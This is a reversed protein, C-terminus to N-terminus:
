KDAEKVCGALAVIRRRRTIIQLSSLFRIVKKRPHRRRMRDSRVPFQAHSNLMKAKTNRLLPWDLSKCHDQEETHPGPLLDRRRRGDLTFCGLIDTYCRSSTESPLEETNTPFRADDCASPHGTTVFCALDISIGYSLM